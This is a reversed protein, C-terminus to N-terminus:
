ADLALQDQSKSEQGPLRWYWGKRKRYSVVGLEAKAAKLTPLSVSLEVALALMVDAPQPGDALREEIGDMVVTRRKTQPRKYREDRAGDRRGAEYGELYARRLIERAKPSPTLAVPEM